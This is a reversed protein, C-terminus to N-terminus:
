TEQSSTGNNNNDNSSIDDDNNNNNNYDRGDNDNNLNNDVNDFYNDIVDYLCLQVDDSFEEDNNTFCEVVDILFLLINHNNHDTNYNTNASIVEDSAQQSTTSSGNGDGDLSSTNTGWDLDSDDADNNTLRTQGSGDDANMVFIDFNSGSEENNDRSGSFAIKEGDPSWSPNFDDADNNTL